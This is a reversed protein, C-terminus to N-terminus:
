LMRLRRRDTPASRNPLYTEMWSTTFLIMAALVASTGLRLGTEGLLWMLSGFLFTKEFFSMIGVELSGYM